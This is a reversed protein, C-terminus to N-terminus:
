LIICFRADVFCYEIYESPFPTDKLQIESTLNNGGEDGM